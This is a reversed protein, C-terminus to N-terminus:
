RGSVDMPEPQTRPTASRTATMGVGVLALALPIGYPPLAAGYGVLGGVVLGLSWLPHLVRARYSAVDLLAWGVRSHRGQLGNLHRDGASRDPRADGPRRDTV